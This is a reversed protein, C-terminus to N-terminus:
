KGLRVLRIVGALAQVVLGVGAAGLLTIVLLVVQMSV